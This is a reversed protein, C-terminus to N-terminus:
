NENDEDNFDEMPPLMRVTIRNIISLIALRVGTYICGVHLSLICISVIFFKVISM